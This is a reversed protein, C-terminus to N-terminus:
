IDALESYLVSDKYNLAMPLDTMIVSPEEKKYKQIEPNKVQLREGRCLRRFAEAGPYECQFSLLFPAEPLTREDGVLTLKLLLLKVPYM